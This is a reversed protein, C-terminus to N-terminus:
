DKREHEPLLANLAARMAKVTDRKGTATQERAVSVAALEQKTLPRGLRREQYAIFKSPTMVRRQQWIRGLPAICAQGM